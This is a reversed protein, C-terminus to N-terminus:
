RQAPEPVPIDVVLLRDERVKEFGLKEAVRLSPINDPSTSWSPIRGRRHIDRVVEAACAPNLGRGRFKKETVVAIDEYHDGVFFPAAVSALEGDVFAGWALESAALGAKGSWPNALWYTDIALGFLAWADNARLPRVEADVSFTPAECRHESIVRPWEAVEECSQELLPLFDDSAEVMGQVRLELDSPELAEQQGQFSFNDHVQCVLARHEPWRDVYCAGNGTNLVHLGILPGPRDPLLPRISEREEPNLLRM